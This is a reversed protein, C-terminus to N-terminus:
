RPLTSTTGFFRYVWEEWDTSFDGFRDPSSVIHQVGSFDVMVVPGGYVSGVFSVPDPSTEGYQVHATVQFQGGVGNKRKVRLVEPQPNDENEGQRGDRHAFAVKFAYWTVAEVTAMMEAQLDVVPPLAEVEDEIMRDAEGRSILGFVSNYLNFGGDVVHNWDQGYVYLTACFGMIEADSNVDDHGFAGEQTAILIEFPNFFERGQGYQSRYMDGFNIRVSYCGGSESSWEAVIGRKALESIMDQVIAM